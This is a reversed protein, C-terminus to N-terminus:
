PLAGEGAVAARVARAIELDERAEIVLVRVQAGAVGIETDGGAHAENRADDLDVGLFGLGGAARARVAASREGVGGTFVLTDLGGLAAVMAATEARLRHLYVEFALSAASEGAAAGDVVARMDATGALALLGSSHFLAHTLE